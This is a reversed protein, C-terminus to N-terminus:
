KQSLDANADVKLIICKEKSINDFNGDIDIRYLEKTPNTTDIRLTGWATKGIIAIYTAFIGIAIGAIAVLIYIYIM